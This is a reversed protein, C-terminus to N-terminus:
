RATACPTQMLTAAGRQPMRASLPTSLLFVIRATPENPCPAAVTPRAKWVDSQGMIATRATMPASSADRLGIELPMMASAVESRLLPLIKPLACHARSTPMNRDVMSTPFRELFVIRPMWPQRMAKPMTPTSAISTDARTAQRICSGGCGRFRDPELEDPCPLDLSSQPATSSSSNLSRQLKRVMGVNQTITTCPMKPVIGQVMMPLM